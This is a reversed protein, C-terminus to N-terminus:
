QKPGLPPGDGVAFYGTPPAGNARCYELAAAAKAIAVQQHAASNSLPVIVTNCGYGSSGGADATRSIILYVRGTGTGLRETRLKLTGVAIDSADPSFSSDGDADSENSFVSIQVPGTASCNDSANSSLDVNEMDHNFPPGLVSHGVNTTLEPAQSDTVTVSFSCSSTTGDAQTASVTVVTTGLPFVSGSAHSYTLTSCGGEATANPFNVVAGCSGTDSNVTINAPCSLECPPTTSGDTMIALEWGGNVVGADGNTDDVIYLQWSGNPDDSGFMSAFTGTGTPAASEYPGAVSAFTDGPAYNAPRFTGAAIASSDPLATAAADDLTITSNVLDTGGGADSMIIFKQGAPSVLLVDLDDPFTHSVDLLKLSMGTIPQTIGSVTVISPNPSAPGSTAGTTGPISIPTPNAFSFSALSNLMTNTAVSKRALNASSSKRSDAQTVPIIAVTILMSVLALIGLKRLYNKM